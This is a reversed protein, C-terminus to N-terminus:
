FSILWFSFFFLFGCINGVELIVWIQKGSAETATPNNWKLYGTWFSTHVEKGGQFVSVMDRASFM